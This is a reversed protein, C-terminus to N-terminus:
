RLSETYENISIRMNSVDSYLKANHLADAHTKSAGYRYEYYLQYEQENLWLQCECFEEYTMGVCEKGNPAMFQEKM